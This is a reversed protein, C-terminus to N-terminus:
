KQSRWVLRALFLSGLLGGALAGASPEPVVALHVSSFTMGTYVNPGAWFVLTDFSTVPSTDVSSLTVNSLQGGALSTTVLLDNPGRYDLTLTLTYIENEALRSDFTLSNLSTFASASNILNASSGSNRDWIAGSLQLNTNRTGFM